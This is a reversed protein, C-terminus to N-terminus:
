AWGQPAKSENVSSVSLISVCFIMTIMLNFHLVSAVMCLYLCLILM